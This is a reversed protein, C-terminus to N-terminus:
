LLLDTQHSLFVKKINPHSVYAGSMEIWICTHMHQRKKALNLYSFFLFIKKSMFQYKSSIKLWFM